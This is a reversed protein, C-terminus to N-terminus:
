GQPEFSRVLDIAARQQRTSPYGACRGRMVVEIGDPNVRVDRTIFKCGSATVFADDEIRIGIDWFERPVGEVPRLYLGPEITLCMGSQLIRSAIVDDVSSV